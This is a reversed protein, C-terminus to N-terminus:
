KVEDEINKIEKGINKESKELVSFIDDRIKKEKSNFGPKADIIKIRKEIKSKLIRFNKKLSVRAEFIERIIARKEKKSRNIFVFIVISIILLLLLLIRVFPIYSVVYSGIAFGSLLIKIEEGESPYSIAGRADKTQASIIYTGEKFLEETFYKWNGENDSITECNRIIKGDKTFNLVLISEPMSKGELYMMEDGAKYIQPYITIEPIEISKINISTKSETRNGAKDVAVVIVSHLGPSQVPMIFPNVESPVISFHNIDDIIMEYYGIGSLDDEAKFYLEPSPNTADNNNEIRIEFDYPSKIDIKIKYSAIPSWGYNNKVKINFYWKGDSIDNYENNDFLNKTITDSSLKQEMDFNLNQLIIDTPMKWSIITNPNNYWQNQDPHTKSSILIKEPKKNIIKKADPIVIKKRDDPPMPSKIKTIINFIAGNKSTLVNTGRGDAALVMGESILLSAKGEKKALFNVVINNGSGIFDPAPTGGSFSIVGNSFTPEKIWLKLISNSKSISKVELIDAPYNIVAEIANISTGLSNVSVSVSFSSDVLYEGNVPSIYLSAAETKGAPMIILLFLAFIFIIKKM